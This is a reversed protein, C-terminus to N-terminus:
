GDGTTLGARQVASRFAAAAAQAERCLEELGDSHVGKDGSLEADNLSAPTPTSGSCGQALRAELRAIRGDKAAAESRAAQLEARLSEAAARFKTAEETASVAKDRWQEAEETLRLALSRWTEAESAEAELSKCLKEQGETDEPLRWRRLEEVDEAEHARSRAGAVHTCSERPELCHSRDGLSLRRMALTDLTERLPRALMGNEARLSRPSFASLRASNLAAATQAASEALASSVNTVEAHLGKERSEGRLGTALRTLEEGTASLARDGYASVPHAEAALGGAADASTPAAALRKSM